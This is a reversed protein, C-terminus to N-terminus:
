NEAVEINWTGIANKGSAKVTSKLSVVPRVGYEYIGDNVSGGSYVCWLYGYSSASALCYYANVHFLNQYKANTLSSGWSSIPAGMASAASIIDEKTLARVKLTGATKTGTQSTYSPYTVSTDSEYVATYKNNFTESLTKYPNYGTKRYTHNTGATFATTLFNIALANVSTDSTGPHYFTLPVGASVLNVTGPAANGDIDVDKSIVRWGKYTSGNVNDYYVPYNVYDGISVVESLLPLGELETTWKAYLTVETGTGLDMDAPIVDEAYLSPTESADNTLGWGKFYYGEREPIQSTIMVPAGHIRVTSIGTPMTADEAGADYTITQKLDDTSQYILSTNGNADKFVAYFTNASTPNPLEVDKEITGEGGYDKWATIKETNSIPSTSIYYKIETDLCKDDSAFIEIDVKTRGVYNINNVETAGVIAIRGWPPTVDNEYFNEAYVKSAGLGSLGSALLALGGAVIAKRRNTSKSVKAFQELYKAIQRERKSKCEVKQMKERGGNRFFREKLKSM